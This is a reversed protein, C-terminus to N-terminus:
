RKFCRMIAPVLHKAKSVRLMFALVTSDSVIGVFLNIERVNSRNAVDVRGM